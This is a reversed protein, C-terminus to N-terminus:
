GSSKDPQFIVPVYFMMAEGEVKGSAMMVAVMIVMVMMVVMMIMVVVMLVILVVVMVVVVMVVVVTVAGPKLPFISATIGLPRSTGRLLPTNPPSRYQASPEDILWSICCM